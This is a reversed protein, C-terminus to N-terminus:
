RNYSFANTGESDPEVYFAFYRGVKANEPAFLDFTFSFKFCTKIKLFRNNQISWELNRRIKRSEFYAVKKSSSKIYFAIM